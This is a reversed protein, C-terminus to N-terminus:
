PTDNKKPLPLNMRKRTWDLYLIAGDRLSQLYEKYDEGAERLGDDYYVLGDILKMQDDRLEPEQGEAYAIVGAHGLGGMIAVMASHDTFWVYGPEVSLIIEPIHQIDKESQEYEDTGKLEEKFREPVPYVEASSFVGENYRKISERCAELLKQHDVRYLLRQTKVALETAMERVMDFAGALGEASQKAEDVTEPSDEGYYAYQLGPLLSMEFHKYTENLTDLSEDGTLKDMAFPNTRFGSGKPRDDAPPEGFENTFCQVQQAGDDSFFILTVMSEDVAISTPEIARIAEPVQKLKEAPDDFHFASATLKGERHLRMLQQCAEYVAKHDIEYFLQKQRSKFDLMTAGYDTRIRIALCRYATEPVRDEPSVSTDDPGLAIALVMRGNPDAVSPKLTIMSEGAFPNDIEERSSLGDFTVVIELRSRDPSERYLVVFRHRPERAPSSQDCVGAIVKKRGEACVLLDYGIANPAEVLTYDFAHWHIGHFAALDEARLNTPEVAAVGTESAGVSWPLFSLLLCSVVLLTLRDIHTM